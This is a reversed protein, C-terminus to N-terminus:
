RKLEVQILEFPKNSTSEPQHAFPDMHMTQGAKASIDETRGDPYTFKASADTLFVSVSEPHGHMPSKEGPGYTIRIVRVRENEFEVKYHKSDVKVPDDGPPQPLPTVTAM